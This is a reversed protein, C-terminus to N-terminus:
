WIGIEAPCWSYVDYFLDVAQFKWLGQKENSEGGVNEYDLSGARHQNHKQGLVLLSLPQM